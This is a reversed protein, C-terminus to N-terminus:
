RPVDKRRWILFMTTLTALILVVLVPRSPRLYEGIVYAVMAALGIQAGKKRNMNGSVAVLKGSLQRFWAKACAQATEESELPIKLSISIKRWGDTLTNHTRPTCLSKVSQLSKHLGDGRDKYQRATRKSLILPRYGSRFYAASRLVLFEFHLGVFRLM